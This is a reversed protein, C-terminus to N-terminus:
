FFNKSGTLTYHNKIMVQYFFELAIDLNVYFIGFFLYIRKDFPLKKGKKGIGQQKVGM